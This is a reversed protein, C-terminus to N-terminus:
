SNYLLIGVYTAADTVSMNTYDVYNGSSFYRLAKLVKKKKTNFNKAIKFIIQNKINYRRNVETAVRDLHDFFLDKKIINGFAFMQMQADMCAVRNFINDFASLLMKRNYRKIKFNLVGFFNLLETHDLTSEKKNPFQHKFSNNAGFSMNNGMRIQIQEFSPPDDPKQNSIFDPSLENFQNSSPNISNTNKKKSFHSIPLPSNTEPKILRTQLILPKSQEIPPDTITNDNM